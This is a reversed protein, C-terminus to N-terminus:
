GRKKGAGKGGPPEFYAESELLKLSEAGTHKYKLTAYPEKVPGFVRTVTGISDGRANFVTTGPAVAENIRLLLSGDRMINKVTGLRKM